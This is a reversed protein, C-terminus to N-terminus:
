SRKGVEVRVVQCFSSIFPMQYIANAGGLDPFVEYRINARRWANTEKWGVQFRVEIAMGGSTETKLRGFLGSM